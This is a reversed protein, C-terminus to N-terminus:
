EGCVEALVIGSAAEPDNTLVSCHTSSNVLYLNFHPREAIPRANAPIDDDMCVTFHVGPHRSRLRVLLEDDLTNREAQRIVEDILRQEIM